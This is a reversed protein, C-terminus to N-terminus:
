SARPPETASLKLRARVRASIVSLEEAVVWVLTVAELPMLMVVLVSWSISVPAPPTARDCDPAAMPTATAVLVMSFVEVDPILASELLCMVTRASSPSMVMPLKSFDCMMLTASPTASPPPCTLPAPEAVTLMMVQVLSARMRLAASTSADLPILMRASSSISGDSARSLPWTAEPSRSPRRDSAMSLDFALIPVPAPPMAAPLPLAEAPAPMEMLVIRLVWLARMSSEVLTSALPPLTSRRAVEEALIITTARPTAAEEPLKARPPETMTLVISLVISLWTFPEVTM